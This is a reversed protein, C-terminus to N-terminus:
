LPLEALNKSFNANAVPTRDTANEVLLMCVIRLGEVRLHAHATEACGLPPVVGVPFLLVGGIRRGILLM